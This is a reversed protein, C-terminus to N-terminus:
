QVKAVWLSAKTLLTAHSYVGWGNFLTNGAGGTGDDTPSSDGLMFVRGTGFTSSACLVNSTNQTFGSRWNLAAMYEPVSTTAVAKKKKDALTPHFLFWFM